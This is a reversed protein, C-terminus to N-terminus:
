FRQAIWRRQTMTAEDDYKHQRIRIM